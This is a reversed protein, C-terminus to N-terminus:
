KNYQKWRKISPFMNDILFTIIFLGVDLTVSAM